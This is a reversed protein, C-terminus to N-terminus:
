PLAGAAFLLGIRSAGFAKACSLIAGPNIEIKLGKDFGNRVVKYSVPM